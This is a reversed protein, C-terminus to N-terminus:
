PTQDVRASWGAATKALTLRLGSDLDLTIVDDSQIQLHFTGAAIRKVTGRNNSLPGEYTLYDRRHDPLKEIAAPQTLPWAPLRFTTLPAGEISEFMLDFHPHPVGTHHLIAFHLTVPSHHLARV